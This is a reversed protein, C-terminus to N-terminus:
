ESRPPMSEIPVAKPRGGNRVIVEAVLAGVVRALEACFSAREPSAFSSFQSTLVNCVISDGPARGRSIASPWREEYERMATRLTETVPGSPDPDGFIEGLMLRGALIVGCEGIGMVGGRRLAQYPAHPLGFTEAMAVGCSRHPVIKGEYRLYVLQGIALVLQREEETLPRQWDGVDGEVDSHRGIIAAPM